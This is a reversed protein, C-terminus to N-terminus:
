GMQQENLVYTRDVFYLKHFILPALSIVQIWTRSLPGFEHYMVRPLVPKGCMAIKFLQLTDDKFSPVQLWELALFRHLITM